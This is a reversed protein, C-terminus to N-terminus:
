AENTLGKNIRKEEWYKRKADGIAKKQWEPCPRNKNGKGRTNGILTLARKKITEIPQPGTKLGDNWPKRGMCALSLNKRHEPTKLVGINVKGYQNGKSHIAMHEKHTMKQLNDITDNWKLEDWHHIDCGDNRMKPDDPHHQNWVVWTRKVHGQADALPHRPLYLTKYQNKM